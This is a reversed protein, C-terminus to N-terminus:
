EIYIQKELIQIQFELAILVRFECVAFGVNAKNSHHSLDSINDHQFIVGIIMNIIIDIM